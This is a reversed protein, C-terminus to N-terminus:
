VQHQTHRTVDAIHAYTWKAYKRLARIELKEDRTLNSAKTARFLLRQISRDEVLRPEFYYTIQQPSDVERFRGSRPARSGLLAISTAPSIPTPHYLDVDVIELPYNHLGLPQRSAITPTLLQHTFPNNLTIIIANAAAPIIATEKPRQFTDGRVTLVEQTHSHHLPIQPDSSWM